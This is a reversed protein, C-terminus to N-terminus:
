EIPKGRNKIARKWSKGNLIAGITSPSVNFMKGLKAQSWCSSDDSKLAIILNVEDITLKSLVNDEGCNRLLGNEIAHEVNESFSVWELNTAKNNTKDGDIHNVYDKGEVPPIFYKAVLRHIMVTHRVPEDTYIHTTPYGSTGVSSKLITEKACRKCQKGSRGDVYPIYRGLSKINGFNSIQYSFGEIDKWIEEM